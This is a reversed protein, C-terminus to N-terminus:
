NKGGKITIPGAKGRETAGSEARAKEENKKGSRLCLNRNEIRKKGRKEKESLFEGSNEHRM